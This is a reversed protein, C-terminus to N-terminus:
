DLGGMRALLAKFRPHDRLGDVRPDVRLWLIRSSREEVAQELRALAEEQRGLAALIYGADQSHVFGDPAATGPLRELIAMAEDRRGAQAYMRGLEALQAPDNSLSMAQKMAAIADDHRQLASLTRARVVHAGPFSLNLSAAEDTRALAEDYRRQYFLILALTRRTDATQPDSEVARRIQEFAEDPRGAAALFRAYQGRALAFSPNFAIAQEYSDRAGQWDWDFRFRADALAMHAEALSPDEALAREAAGKVRPGAMAPSWAGNVEMLSYCRSLSAWALGYKPELSVARELAECAEHQRARDFRYLLARGKFYLDQAEPSAQFTQALDRHEDPTLAVRISSALDRALEAQLAFADKISREYSKSWLRLGDPVRILAATLRLDTGALVISGELVADVGLESAIENLRKTTTKYGMVSTRDTLRLASIRSLEAILQDTMGDVFYERSADGSLNALPMVAISRVLPSGGWLRDRLADLNAGVALAAVLAAAAAVWVGRRHTRAVLAGELLAEAAGATQVRQSPVSATLADVCRVFTSPLDPRLDRLLTRRGSRHAERAETWSTGRVPHKGTVLYFLLVGLSYIDSQPTARGGEFLEPAMYVPTGTSRHPEVVAVDEGAGFDMLVVRGGDERMVNQAKVDRHVLGAAHVAALARSVEVGIVLAEHPGFPGRQEVIHRLTHGRVFEMWLGIYGDAFDAGHIAVVNPHRVRALLRGEGIVASDLPAGSAGTPILKLAVEKDLKRDSARYVAGFGGRGVVELLTLHRWSAPTLTTPLDAHPATPDSTAQPESQGAEAPGASTPTRAVAGVRALVRLQAVLEREAPTSAGSEVADWDIPTGDAVASALEAVLHPQVTV